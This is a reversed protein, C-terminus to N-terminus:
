HNSGPNTCIGNSSVSPSSFNLSSDERCTNLCSETKLCALVEEKGNVTTTTTHLPALALGLLVLASVFSLVINRRSTNKYHYKNNLLTRVRIELTDASAFAPITSYAPSLDYKFLKKLISILPGKTGLNKIAQEDARIERTVAYLQIQDSISPFFPFLSKIIKALLMVLADKHELHYKEHHLIAELEKQEALRLLSSSLVVKPRLFGLCFAFPRKDKVILIKKEIKLDRFIKTPKGAKILNKFLSRRLFYTKLYNVSLKIFTLFIMLVMLKFVFVGIDTSIRVFYSCTLHQCYYILDRFIFPYYKKAVYSSIGILLFFLSLFSITFKTIKM